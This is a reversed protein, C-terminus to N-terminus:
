KYKVNDLIIDISHKVTSETVAPESVFPPDSAADYWYYFSLLEYTNIDEINRFSLKIETKSWGDNDYHHVVTDLLTKEIRLGPQNGKEILKKFKEIRKM